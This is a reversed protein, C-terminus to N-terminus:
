GFGPVGGFAGGRPISDVDPNARAEALEKNLQFAGRIAACYLMSTGNLVGTPAHIIGYAKSIAEKSRGHATEIPPLRSDSVDVLRVEYEGATYLVTNSITM